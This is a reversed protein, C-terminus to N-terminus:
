ADDAIHGNWLFRSNFFRPHFLPSPSISPILLSLPPPDVDVGSRHNHDRGVKWGHNRRHISFRTPETFRTNYIPDFKKLRDHALWRYLVTYCSRMFAAPMAPMYRLQPHTSASTQLPRQASNKEAVLERLSCTCEGSCTTAIRGRTLNSQLSTQIPRPREDTILWPLLRTVSSMTPTRTHASATTRCHRTRRRIILVCTGRRRRMAARRTARCGRGASTVCTRRHRWRSSTSGTASDPRSCSFARRTWGAASTQDRHRRFASGTTAPRCATHFQRWTEQLLCM